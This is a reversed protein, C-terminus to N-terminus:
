ALPESMRTLGSPTKACPRGAASTAPSARRSAPRVCGWGTQPSAVAAKATATAWATACPSPGRAAQRAASSQAVVLEAWRGTTSASSRASPAGGTHSPALWPKTSIARCFAKKSSSCASDSSCAATRETRRPPSVSVLAAM